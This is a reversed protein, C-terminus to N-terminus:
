LLVRPGYKAMFCHLSATAGRRLQSTEDRLPVSCVFDSVRKLSGFGKLGFSSCSRGREFLSYWLERGASPLLCNRLNDLLRQVKACRVRHRRAALPALDLVRYSLNEHVYVRGDGRRATVGGLPFLRVRM